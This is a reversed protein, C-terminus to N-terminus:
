ENTLKEKIRNKMELTNELDRYHSTHGPVGESFFKISDKKKADARLMMVYFSRTRITKHVYAQGPM